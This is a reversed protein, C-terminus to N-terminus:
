NGSVWDEAIDKPLEGRSVKAPGKVERLSKTQLSSGACLYFWQVNFKGNGM